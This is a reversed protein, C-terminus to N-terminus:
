NTQYCGGFYIQAGSFQAFTAFGAGDYINITGSAMVEYFNTAKVATTYGISLPGPALSSYPLGGLTMNAASSNTAVTLQAQLYVLRGIKVYTAQTITLAVGATNTPTWNGEAYDDLTHVDASPNQTAPFQLQGNLLQVGGAFNFRFPKATASGTLTEGIDFSNTNAQIYLSNGNPGNLPFNGMFFSANGAAVRPNISFYSGANSSADFRFGTGGLTVMHIAGAAPRYWGLGPESAFALGPKAVTGDVVIFEGTATNIGLNTRAGAATSAGTGGQTIPLPYVVSSDSLSTWETGDWQASGGGPLIFIDGPNPNAPFNFQTSM